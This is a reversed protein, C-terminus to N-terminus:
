LSKRLPRNTARGEPHVLVFYIKRVSFDSSWDDASKVIDISFKPVPKRFEDISSCEGNRKPM